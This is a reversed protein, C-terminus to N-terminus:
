QRLDALGEAAIVGRDHVGFLLDAALHGFPTLDEILDFFEGSADTLAGLASEARRAGVKEFFKERTQLELWVRVINAANHVFTGFM